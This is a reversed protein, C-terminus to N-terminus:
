RTVASGAGTLSAEGQEPMQAASTEAPRRPNRSPVDAIGIAEAARQLLAPDIVTGPLPEPMRGEHAKLM